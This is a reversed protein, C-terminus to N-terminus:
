PEKSGFVKRDAHLRKMNCSRCVLARVCSGCSYEGSCCGHDHDVELKLSEACDACRGGQRERLAAFDEDTLGHKRHHVARRYANYRSPDSKQWTLVKQINCSKCYTQLGDSSKSKRHFDARDKVDNCRRCVKLSAGEKGKHRATKQAGCAAGASHPAETLEAAKARRQVSCRGFGSSRGVTQRQEASPAEPEM